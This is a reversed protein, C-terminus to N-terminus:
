KPRTLEAKILQIQIVRNDRIAQKSQDALEKATIKNKQNSM